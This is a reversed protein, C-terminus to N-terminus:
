NPEQSPLISKLYQLEGDMLMRVALLYKCITIHNKCECCKTNLSIAYWVTSKTQSRIIFEMNFENIIQLHREPNKKFSTM